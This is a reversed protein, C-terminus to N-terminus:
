IRACSDRKLLVPTLIIHKKSLSDDESRDLTLILEEAAIRGFEELPLAVTTLKPTVVRSMETDDFGILSINGPVSLGAEVIAQMAGIAMHDNSCFVATPPLDLMLLKEMQEKGSEIKWDGTLIYTSQIKINNDKLANQYGKYHNQTKYSGERGRIIAIRQHGLSILYSVAEYAGSYDNIEISSLDVILEKNLTIIPIGCEILEKLFSHDFENTAMLLLGDTRGERITNAIITQYDQTGVSIFEFQLQYGRRSLATSIGKFIPNFFIWSSQLIWETPDGWKSLLFLSIVRSKGTSLGKAFANPRYKKEEAIKLIKEATAPSIKDSGNLAMSVTAKSVGAENAIDTLTTGSFNKRNNPSM